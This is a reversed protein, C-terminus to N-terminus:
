GTSSASCACSRRRPRISRWGTRTTPMRQARASRRAHQPRALRRERAPALAHRVLRGGAAAAGVVRLRVAAGGVRCRDGVRALEDAIFDLNIHMPPGTMGLDFDRAVTLDGTLKPDELHGMGPPGVCAEALRDNLWAAVGAAWTPASRRSSRPEAGPPPRVRRRDPRASSDPTAARSPASWRAWRSPSCPRCCEACAAPRGVVRYALGRAARPLVRFFTWKERERWKRLMSLGSLAQPGHRRDHARRSTAGAAALERHVRGPFGVLFNFFGDVFALFNRLLARGFGCPQLDTGVVRIGM